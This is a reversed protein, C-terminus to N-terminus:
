TRGATLTQLFTLVTRLEDDSLRDLLKLIQDRSDMSDFGMLYDVTTDLAEAFQAVRLLPLDVEGKEIHVIMSHNAYGIKKALEVQTM